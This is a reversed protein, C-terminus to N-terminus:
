AADEIGLLEWLLRRRQADGEDSAHYGRGVEWGLSVLKHSLEILNAMDVEVRERESM